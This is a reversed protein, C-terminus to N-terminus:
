PAPLARHATAGNTSGNNAASSTQVQVSPLGSHKGKLLRMDKTVVADIVSDADWGGMYLTSATEADTKFTESEKKADEQLAPVDRTDPALEVSPRANGNADIPKPVVRVLAGAMTDWLPRVTGNAFQRFAAEYNGANLASGHMGAELGVITPHVMGAAAVRVEGSGQVKAFDIQDLNAGLVKPDAGGVTFMIKYPNGGSRLSRLEEFKAVWAEFDTPSKINLKQPDLVMGLNPTAGGRLYARKHKTMEKDSSIEAIIPSLWSMGRWPIEPDPTPMYHVVQEPALVIPPEKAGFGRPQYVYAVLEANLDLPGVDEDDLSGLVIDTWDPRMVRLRDGDRYAFFNGACANQAEALALLTGTNAGPWPHELISLEKTGFMDGPRGNLRDRWQFRAQRFLQIRNMIVAFVIPSERYARQVFGLFNPAIWMETGVLTQALIMDEPELDFPYGGSFSGEDIVSRPTLGASISRVLSV